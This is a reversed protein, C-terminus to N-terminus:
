RPPRNLRWDFGLPEVKTAGVIPSDSQVYPQLAELIGTPKRGIMKQFGDLFDAKHLVLVLDNLKVAEGDRVAARPDSLYRQGQDMLQADLVAGDYPRTRLPPSSAACYNLAFFVRADGAPQVERRVVEHLTMRKGGFLFEETSFIAGPPAGALMTGPYNHEIAAYLCTANIANIWYALRDNATAFLEPHNGPSVAGILGIYRMLSQRVGADSQVIDWTVYGDPTVAASLVGAWDADSFSRPIVTPAVPANESGGPQCGVVALLTLLGFFIWKTEMNQRENTWRQEEAPLAEGEAGAKLWRM